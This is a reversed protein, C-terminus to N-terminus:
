PPPQQAGDASHARHYATWVEPRLRGRESVDLERARAWARVEATTPESDPLEHRPAPLRDAFGDAGATRRHEAVAAGLFRYTWEQALSRTECFVIPVSPYRVAAEGLTDAIVAPRVRDLKFLKSYRDEVVVAARELSALAALLYWLKGRHHHGGPRRSEANSGPSSGATTSSPTTVPM